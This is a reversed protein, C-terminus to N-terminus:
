IGVQVRVLRSWFEMQPYPSGPRGGIAERILNGEITVWQNPHWTVGLTTARERNGIISVARPNMTPAAGGPGSGLTLQELRAGLQISGFGGHFLPRRPQSVNAARSAGAVVWTGSVYWGRALFPALDTGQLSQGRREDSLRIIESAVSFPGPRWRIQLGTRRRRGAVWVDSDFFSVGLVTRGRIGPFGVPLASQTYALGFQLDSWDAKARPFPEVTVRGAATRGGFVRAGRRTRANDGDHAFLGVEYGLARGVVRGHLMLGPDRGPALRTSVLSRYMFDLSRSGTTEELGFPLKFQGVQLQAARVPRLNVWADRWPNLAEIEREVEFEVHRGIEGTLGVRRRGVDFTDGRGSAIVAGSSRGDILTRAHIEVHLSGAWDIEPRDDWRISWGSDRPTPEGAVTSQAAAPTSMLAALVALTLRQVATMAM